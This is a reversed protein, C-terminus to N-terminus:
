DRDTVGCKTCVADYLSSDSYRWEHDCGAPKSKKLLAYFMATVTNACGFGSHREGHRVWYMPRDNNQPDYEVSWKEDITLKSLQTM